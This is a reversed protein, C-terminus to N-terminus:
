NNNQAEDKLRDVAIVIAIFLEELSEEYINLEYSDGWSFWAKRIHGVRRSGQYVTFNYDFFDGELRLQASEPAISIRRVFFSLHSQITLSQGNAFHVLYRPLLRFIQRDITFVHSGDARSLHVTHGIFRFDQDVYYHVVGSSDTIPYHDTIKFVKQKIYLQKM